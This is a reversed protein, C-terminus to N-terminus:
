FDARPKAVKSLMQKEQVEKGGIINSNQNNVFSQLIRHAASYKKSFDVERRQWVAGGGTEQGFVDTKAGEFQYLVNPEM